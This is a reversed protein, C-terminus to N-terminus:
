SDNHAKFTFTWKMESPVIPQEGLALRITKGFPWSRTEAFIYYKSGRFAAPTRLPQIENACVIKLILKSVELQALYFEAITNFPTNKDATLLTVQAVKPVGGEDLAPLYLLHTTNLRLIM